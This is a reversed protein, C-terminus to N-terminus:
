VVSVLLQVNDMTFLHLVKYISAFLLPYLYSRLGETWEWTLYGYNNVM